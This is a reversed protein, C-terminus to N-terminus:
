FEQMRNKEFVCLGAIVGAQRLKRHAVFLSARL